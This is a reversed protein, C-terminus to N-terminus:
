THALGNCCAFEAMHQKQVDEAAIRSRRRGAMNRLAAAGKEVPGNGVDGHGTKQPAPFHFFNVRRCPQLGIGPGTRLANGSPSPDNKRKLFAPM